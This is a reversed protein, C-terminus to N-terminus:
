ANLPQDQSKLSTRRQMSRSLSWYSVEVRRSSQLTNSIITTLTKVVWFSVNNEVIMQHRLITVLMCM